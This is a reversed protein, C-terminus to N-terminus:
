ILISGDALETIKEDIVEMFKKTKDEEVAKTRIDKMVSLSTINEIEKKFKTLNLEVLKAIDDNSLVNESEITEIDKTPNVLILDGGKFLNPCSNILYDYEDTTIAATSDAKMEIVKGGAMKLDLFLYGRSTNRVKVYKSKAM